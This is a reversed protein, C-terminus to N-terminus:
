FFILFRKSSCVFVIKKLKSKSTKSKLPFEGDDFGNFRDSICKHQIQFPKYM